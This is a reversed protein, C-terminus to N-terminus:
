FLDFIAKIIQWRSKQRGRREREQMWEEWCRAPGPTMGSARRDCGFQGKRPLVSQELNM